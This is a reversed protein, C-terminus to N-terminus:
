QEAMEIHLTNMHNLIHYSAHVKAYFNTGCRQQKAFRTDFAFLIPKCNQFIPLCAVLFEFITFKSMHPGIHPGCGHVTCSIKSGKYVFEWPLYANMSIWIFISQTTWFLRLSAIPPWFWPVKTACYHPNAGLINLWKKFTWSMLNYVKVINIGWCVLTVFHAFQVMKSIALLM